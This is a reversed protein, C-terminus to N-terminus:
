YGERLIALMENIKELRIEDELERRFWEEEPDQRRAIKDPPQPANEDEVLHIAYFAM